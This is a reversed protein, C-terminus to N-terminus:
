KVTRHPAADQHDLGEQWSMADHQKVHITAAEWATMETSWPSWLYLLIGIWAVGWVYGTLRRQRAYRDSENLPTMVVAVGLGM